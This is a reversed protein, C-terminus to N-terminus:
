NVCDPAAPMDGAMAAQVFPRVAEPSVELGAGQTSNVVEGVPILAVRVGGRTKALGEALGLLDADTVVQDRVAALVSAANAPTVRGILGSLFVQQRKIRDLDGNPLGHRQRVFALATSGAVTQRGERFDAQAFPDRTAARLCVEVGGVADAARGIAAMDIVLYDDIAMGTLAGVATMTLEAGAKDAEGQSAGASLAAERGRSFASNVKGQGFGPIDVLTDRPVSIATAREGALRTLMITDARSGEDRGLVLVTREELVAGPAAPPAQDRRVMQPIVVASVAAVVVAVAAFVLPMSRRPRERRLARLVTSGDVARGAQETVAERILSETKDFTM